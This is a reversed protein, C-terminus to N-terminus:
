FGYHFLNKRNAKQKLSQWFNFNLNKFSSCCCCNSCFHAQFQVSHWGFIKVSLLYTIISVVCFSCSFTRRILPTISLWIIWHQSIYYGLLHTRFFLTLQSTKTELKLHHLKVRIEMEELPHSFAKSM